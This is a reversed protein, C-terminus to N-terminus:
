CESGIKNILELCCKCDGLSRHDQIINIDEYRMATSLSIWRESDIYRMYEHMLCVDNITNKYGSQRLLRKDFESNYALVKKNLIAKDIDKIIDQFIPSDKIDEKTIGHVEYASYNIEKDTNVYTNLLINGYMDIISIEIIKDDSDLGTTEVDLIVYDDKNNLIERFFKSRIFQRKEIEEQEKKIRNEKAKERAKELAMLQKSSAKKNNKIKWEEFEKSDLKNLSELSYFPITLYTGYAREDKTYAVEILNEKVMKLRLKKDIDLLNELDRPYLGFARDKYSDYIELLEIKNDFIARMLAEKATSKKIKVGNDTLIKLLEDKTLQGINDRVHKKIQTKSIVRAM